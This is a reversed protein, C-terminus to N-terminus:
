CRGRRAPARGESIAGRADEEDLFRCVRRGAEAEVAKQFDVGFLAITKEAAALRAQSEVLEPSGFRQRWWAIAEVCSSVGIKSYAACLHVRVTGPSCGLTEAVASITLGRAMLKICELQRATLTDEPRKTSLHERPHKTEAM